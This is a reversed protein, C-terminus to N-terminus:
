NLHANAAHHYLQLHNQCHDCRYDLYKLVHMEQQQQLWLLLIRMMLVSRLVRMPRIMLVVLKSLLLEALYSGDQGTIGTVLAVKGCSPVESAAM